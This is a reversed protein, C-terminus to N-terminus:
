LKSLKEQQEPTLMDVIKVQQEPTLSSLFDDMPSVVEGAVEEAPSEGNSAEGNSKPTAGGEKTQNVVYERIKSGFTKELLGFLRDQKAYRSKLAEYELDRAHKGDLLEEQGEWMALRRNHYEQEVLRLRSNEESMGAGWMQVMKLSYDFLFRNQMMLQAALGKETAPQVAGEDEELAGKIRWSRSGIDVANKDHCVLAFNQFGALMDCRDMAIDSAEEAVGAAFGEPINKTPVPWMEVLTSTEPKIHELRIITTVPRIRQIM